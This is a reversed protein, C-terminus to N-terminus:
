CQSVQDRVFKYNAVKLKSVSLHLMLQKVNCTVCMALIFNIMSEHLEQPLSFIGGFNTKRLIAGESDINAKLKFSSTCRANNYYSCPAIQLEIRSNSKGQPM